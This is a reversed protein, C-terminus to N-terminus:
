SVGGTVTDEYEIWETGGLTRMSRIESPDANTGDDMTGELATEGENAAAVWGEEDRLFAGGDDKREEGGPGQGDHQWAPDPAVKASTAAAAADDAAKEQSKKKERDRRALEKRLEEAEAAQKENQFLLLSRRGPDPPPSCAM